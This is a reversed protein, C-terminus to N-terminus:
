VKGDNAGPENSAETETETNLAICAGLDDLTRRTDEPLLEEPIHVEFLSAHNAPLPRNKRSSRIPSQCYFPEIRNRQDLSMDPSFKIPCWAIQEELFGEVFGPLERDQQRALDGLRHKPLPLQTDSLKHDLFMRFLRPYGIEVLIYFVVTYGLLDNKLVTPPERLTLGNISNRMEDMVGTLYLKDTLSDALVFTRGDAATREYEKRHSRLKARADEFAQSRKQVSPWRNISSSGQSSVPINNRGDLLPAYSSPHTYTRGSIEATVTHRRPSM